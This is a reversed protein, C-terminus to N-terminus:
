KTAEEDENIALALEALQIYMQAMAQADRSLQEHKSRYPEAAGSGFYKNAKTAYEAAKEYHDKATM